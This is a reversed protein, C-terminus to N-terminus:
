NALRTRFDSTASLIDSGLHALTNQVLGSFLPRVIHTTNNTKKTPQINYGLSGIHAVWMPDDSDRVFYLLCLANLTPLNKKGMERDM